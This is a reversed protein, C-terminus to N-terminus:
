DQWFQTIFLITDHQTTDADVVM